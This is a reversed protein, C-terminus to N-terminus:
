FDEDDEDESDDIILEIEPNEWSGTITYLDHSILNIDLVKQILALSAGVVVGGLLAGGAFTLGDSHPKVRMLLDYDRDLLGINGFLNIDAAPAKIDFTKLNGKGYFFEFEGDIKDFHFGKRYVDDFDLTLRNTLKFINMLGLLRGGAGPEVKMVEGDKMHFTTKGKVNEWSVAYPEGRWRASFDMEYKSRDISKEYGLGSLMLGLNDSHVSGSLVTENKYRWSTLWTGKAAFSMSPGNLALKKILLGSKHTETKLAVDSFVWGDWLLEKAQWNLAPLDTPKISEVGKKNEASNSLTYLDIKELDLYIETDRSLGETFSGKGTVLRSRISFDTVKDSGRTASFAVVDESTLDIELTSNKLVDIKLSLPMTQQKQKTVVDSIAIAVGQLSSAADFRVQYDQPQFPVAVSIDWQSFGSFWAQPIGSYIGLLSDIEIPGTLRYVVEPESSINRTTASLAVVRGDIVARVDDATISAETFHFHGTIDEVAYELAPFEWDTRDFALSGKFTPEIVDEYLPLNMSLSLVTDGDLKFLRLPAGFLDDLASNWVYEQLDVAEAVAKADIHLMPVDLDQISASIHSVYANRTEGVGEYIFMGQNYFKITASLNTLAPWDDLFKLDVDVPRFIAEMVGTSDYFPFDNVQGYLIFSGQEVYGNIITKDLWDVLSKSMISVPYYHHAYKTYADYFDTQMDIFLQPQSATESKSALLDAQEKSFIDVDTEVASAAPMNLFMRTYTDIHTNKLHLTQASFSWANDEIINESLRLVSSGHLMDAQLTDRFLAPLSIEVGESAFNILAEHAKYKISVDLGSVDVPVDKLSIGFDILDAQFRLNGALDGFPFGTESAIAEREVTESRPAGPDVSESAALEPAVSEPASSEPDTSAYEIPESKVQTNNPVNSESEPVPKNEYRFKLNYVDGSIDMTALKEMDFMKKDVPLMAAIDMLDNLRLYDASVSLGKSGYDVIINAPEQWYPKEGKSINLGSINLHWQEEFSHFRMDTTLHDVQWSGSSHNSALLVNDVSLRSQIENIIGDNIEGWLTLDTVGGIEYDPLWKFKKKWQSLVIGEGNIYFDGSLLEGLEGEFDAVIHLSEGFSEPLRMSLALVHNDLYNEVSINVDALNLTLKNETFDRYHIDSELLSYDANTLTYLLQENMGSSKKNDFSVGQIVWRDDPHKEISLDVGVLSIEGVTLENRLLSGITDLEFLFEKFQFLPIKNDTDYISVQLLKLRPSFWHMDADIKEIHVPLGIQQSLEAEIESKYDTAYPLVGRVISFAVAALILIIALCVIVCVRFQVYWRM